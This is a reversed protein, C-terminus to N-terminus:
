TDIKESVQLLDKGCLIGKLIKTDKEVVIARSLKTRRLLQLVDILRDNKYVWTNLEQMIKKATDESEYQNYKKFFYPKSIYGHVKNTKDIVPYLSHSHQKLVQEVENLSQTIDISVVKETMIDGVSLCQIGDTAIDQSFYINKRRLHESFITYKALLSSIQDAVVCTFMLPLIISYELTMEFLIVIATFTARSSSAFMAAMGVLAYAGFSATTDPFYQNVIMGYFGGFMCGIFLLPAFIGGSGGCALTISMSIPKLLMLAILISLEANGRLVETMSDYGIGFTQPYFFAIISVLIGGIIAKWLYHVPLSDFFDDMRYLTKSAIVGFIGTGLGLGLYLLLEFPSVLKYAPIFFEVSNGHYSRAIITAFVSSIVLPVFSKTRLERLIIEVAFIVGAIPTNFSAALGGAAGCALLIKVGKTPLKLWGALMSGAAAGMQVIPGERGSSGGSAITLASAIGKIFVLRGRLRGGRAQVSEIVEPVGHGGAEPAFTKIFAAVLVFGTPPLIYIWNGLIHNQFSITDTSIQNQLILNQFFGILQKLYIAAYGAIIGIIAALSNLLYTETHNLNEFQIGTLKEVEVSLNKLAKRIPVQQNIQM